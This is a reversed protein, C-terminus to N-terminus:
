VKKKCNYKFIKEDRIMKDIIYICNHCFLADECNKCKNNNITRIENIRKLVKFDNNIIMNIGNQDINKIDSILFKDDTLLPCPYIKGDYNIFIQNEGANCTIAEKNTTINKDDEFIIEHENSLYLKDIVANGVRMFNRIVPHVGLIECEHKFKSVHKYNNKGVVMSVYINNMGRDKLENIIMKIHKKNNYPDISIEIFDIKKVLKDINELNILTANTALIIKGRYTTKVYDLIEFFDERLMPEGGSIKLKIPNMKLAIDIAKKIEKTKLDIYKVEYSSKTCCYSCNLNCNNTISITVLPIYHLNRKYKPEPAMLGMRDLFIYVSKLYRKNDVGEILEYSESESMGRSYSFELIHMIEKPIKIWEGTYRNSLFVIDKSYSYRTLEKAFYKKM